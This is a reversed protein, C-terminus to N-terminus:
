FPPDDDWLPRQHPAPRQAQRIIQGAYHNELARAAEHFFELVAATAEDDLNDPLAVLPQRHNM